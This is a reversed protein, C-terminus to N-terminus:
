QKVFKLTTLEGNLALQVFYLGKQLTAVSLDMQETGEAISTSMVQRGAIDVIQVLAEERTAKDFSLTVDENALTPRIQIQGEGKIEVVAVDSYESAGDFDVQLLRYYNKGTAAVTHTFNYEQVESTTGNGIVKDLTQFDRGNTSYEVEFHSNNEESATQWTLIVERDEQVKADFSVFEVPLAGQGANCSGATAASPGAWGSSTLALSSGVTTTSNSEEVGVDTSTIGIAPGDAATAFGEYSLFEIVTITGSCDRVLAIGDRPGNQLGNTPLNIEVLCGDVGMQGCIDTEEAAASCSLNNIADYEVMNSATNGNYLVVSYTCGDNPLFVEIFEGSDGGINDYHFENILQGFSLPNLCFILCTLLLLKKM